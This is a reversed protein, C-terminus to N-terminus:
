ADLEAAYPSRNSLFRISVSTDVLVSV